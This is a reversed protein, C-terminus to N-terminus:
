QKVEKCNVLEVPKGNPANPARSVKIHELLVDNCKELWVGHTFFAPLSKDWDLQFNQLRLRTINNAYFGAIDHKFLAFRKDYVPRLDLNGGREKQLAGTQVAFAMGNFRIDEIHGPEFGYLVIGSEGKLQINSFDINSIRGIRAGAVQPIVSIQIPEAKGWWPGEHLMTEVTINSFMVGEINQKGRVFIGIGRNSKINMNQFVINRIDNSGYGVRLGASKSIINCNSITYNESPRSCYGDACPSIAIGDDATVINCNNINVFRCNSADIGDANSVLLSNLINLSQINVYECGGLHVCWNPADVITFNSMLVNSCNILLVLVGPRPLMAVPGDQEPDAPAQYQNGQRTLSKDFDELVYHAKQTYSRANGDITGRGTISINSASVAVVLANDRDETKMGISPYDTVSPSGLLVAGADLLLNINNKLTITGTLYEGAPIMVTGGGKSACADIAQQIAKTNLTKGDGRAGYNLINFSEQGSVVESLGLVLLLISKKM